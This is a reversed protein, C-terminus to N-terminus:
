VRGCGGVRILWRFLGTGIEPSRTTAAMGSMVTGMPGQIFDYGLTQINLLMIANIPWHLGLPVMFPYALPVVIALDATAHFKAHKPAVAPTSNKDHRSFSAVTSSSVGSVVRPQTVSPRSNQLYGGNVRPYGSPRGSM